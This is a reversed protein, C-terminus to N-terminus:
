AIGELSLCSSSFPVPTEPLTTGYAAPNLQVTVQILAKLFSMGPDLGPLTVLLVSGAPRQQDRWSHRDVLQRSSDGADLWCM